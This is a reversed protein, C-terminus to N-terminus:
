AKSTASGPSPQEPLDFVVELADADEAIPLAVEVAATEDVAEAMGDELWDALAVEAALMLAAALESLVVAATAATDCVAVTM